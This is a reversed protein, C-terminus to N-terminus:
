SLSGVVDTIGWICGGHADVVIIDGRGEGDEHKCRSPNKKTHCGGPHHVLITPGCRKERGQGQMEM